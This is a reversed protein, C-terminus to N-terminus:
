TFACFDNSDVCAAMAVRILAGSLVAGSAWGVTAGAWVVLLNIVVLLTYSPSCVSTYNDSVASVNGDSLLHRYYITM